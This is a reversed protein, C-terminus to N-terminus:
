ANITTSCYDPKKENNISSNDNKKGKHKFFCSYCLFCCCLCLAFAAITIACSWFITSEYFQTKRNTPANTTPILTTPKPTPIICKNNICNEPSQCCLSYGCPLDPWDCCVYHCTIPENCYMNHPPTSTKWCCYPDWGINDCWGYYGHVISCHFILRHSCINHSEHVGNYVVANYEADFLSIQLIWIITLAGM